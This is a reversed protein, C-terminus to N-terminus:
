ASVATAIVKIRSAFLQETAAQATLLTAVTRVIKLGDRDAKIRLSPRACVAQSDTILTQSKAM